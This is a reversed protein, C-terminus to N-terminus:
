LWFVTFRKAEIPESIKENDKSTKLYLIHLIIIRVVLRAATFIFSTVFAFILVLYGKVLYGTRTEYFTTIVLYLLSFM